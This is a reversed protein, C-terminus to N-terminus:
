SSPGSREGESSPAPSACSTGALSTMDSFPNIPEDLYTIRLGNRRKKPRGRPLPSVDVYGDPLSKQQAKKLAARNEYYRRYYMKRGSQTTDTMVRQRSLTM